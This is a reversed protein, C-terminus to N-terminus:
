IPSYAASNAHSKLCKSATIINIGNAVRTTGNQTMVLDVLRYLIKRSSM